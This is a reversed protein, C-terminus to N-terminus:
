MPARTRGETSPCIQLPTGRRRKDWAQPPHTPVVATRGPAGPVRACVGRTACRLPGWRQSTSSSDSAQLAATAPGPTVDVGRWVVHKGHRAFALTHRAFDWLTPGLTGLWQVGLVMDYDGLPLAYLDIHVSQAPAKGPSAIRDGNAVVVSLGRSPRIPVGVRRAMDVDIFNHTSGSDLLAIAIADGITVYVKMTQYGRTRVGTVTHLSISPTDGVFKLASCEIDEDVAKDDSDAIELVFLKKCRHGVVFKEDCNYCLGETRRQAMEAQSLCRRPLSSAVLTSKSSGPTASASSNTGSLSKPAAAPSSQQSPRTIRGQSLDTHHLQLRQEYARALMIANDLTAPRRLAVDTKLPNVQYESLGADRCALTLFQNTHDDVSRTRRLLILEGLPSDTMPPGFRQQVLQVFRRWSPMRDTLELRAYWLQTAGTLHMAAYWVQRAKPTNQGRFFTKTRNLWPLPDENGDFSPFELRVSSHFRNDDLYDDHAGRTEFPREPPPGHTKDSPPPPFGAKLSPQHVSNEGADVEGSAVGKGECKSKEKRIVTLKLVRVQEANDFASSQLRVIQDPVAALKDAVPALPKMARVDTALEEIKATLRELTSKLDDSSGM